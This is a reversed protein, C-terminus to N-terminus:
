PHALSGQAIGSITATYKRPGEKKQSWKIMQSLFKGYHEWLAWDKGWRGSLDSTFAVSRGLGYQGTVLLPGERTEFLVSSGQKPYTLIHGYVMPLDEFTIGRLMEGRIRVIPQMKKEVILNKAVIKTEDTFIRPISNPDDTYYSRGGGWGAIDRLLNVDSGIGVAVTSVTINSARISGVLPNFEAEETQGDSLIIIHKKAARYDKLVRYADKLAPYLDTGGEERLTSLQYVIKKREKVRAVPVIWRFDSDFALIGVSDLPNLLEVTSFAAIRAMELKSKGDYTAIMSYSKDIILIICVGSLELNTPVDMFVPLAKELPTKLYYGAGFSNDGGIMILGGGMDRVYMEINEMTRFPIANGSVNDLVIANYGVLDYISPPIEGPGKHDIDLGQSLMALLPPHQKSLDKTIYLITPRREAETFSMGENNQFLLDKTTNIVALYRYLGHEELTEYFRFINKGQHLEISQNIIIKDNRQIVLEGKNKETSGIILRVDFPTNLHVSSPTEVKDIYVESKGLEHTLPVPYIEIGLSRALYAMEVAYDMNENGDSLLVIRNKGKRPMKGVALELAKHINTFDKNIHSKYTLHGLDKRLSIEVSPERGFVILGARDEETMGKKVDDVFGTAAREMDSAISKSMDMCFFINVNDSRKLLRPDSLTFGL